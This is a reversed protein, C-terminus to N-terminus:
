YVWIDNHMTLTVRTRNYRQKSSEQEATLRSIEESENGSQAPTVIAQLGVRLMDASLPRPTSPPTLEPTSVSIISTDTEVNDREIELAGDSHGSKGHNSGVTARRRAIVKRLLM